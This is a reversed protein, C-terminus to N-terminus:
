RASRGIRTHNSPVETSIETQTGESLYKNM